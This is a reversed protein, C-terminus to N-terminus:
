QFRNKLFLLSRLFIGAIKNKEIEFFCLWDQNTQFFIVDSVFWDLFPYPFIFPRYLLMFNRRNGLFIEFIQWQSKVFIYFSFNINNYKQLRIPLYSGVLAKETKITLEYKNKKKDYKTILKTKFEFNCIFLKANYKFFSKSLGVCFIFKLFEKHKGEIQDSLIKKITLRLKFIPVNRTILLILRNAKQNRNKLNFTLLKKYSLIKEFKLNTNINIKLILIFIKAFFISFERMLYSDIKTDSFHNNFFIYFIIKSVVKTKQKLYNKQTKLNKKFKIERLDISCIDVDLHTLPKKLFNILFYFISIAIVLLLNNTIKKSAFFQVFFLNKKVLYCKTKKLRLIRIIRFFTNNFYITLNISKNFFKLNKCKGFLLPTYKKSFILLHFYKTLIKNNQIIFFDLNIKENKKKFIQNDNLSKKYGFTFKQKLQLKLNTNNRIIDTEFCAILFKNANQTLYNYRIYEDLINELNLDYGMRDAIELLYKNEKCFFSFLIRIFGEIKLFNIKLKKRKQSNFGICNNFNLKIQKFIQQHWNTDLNCPILNFM